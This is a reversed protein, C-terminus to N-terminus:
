ALADREGRAEAEGVPARVVGSRLDRGQQEDWERSFPTLPARVFALGARRPWDPDRCAVTCRGAPHPARCLLERLAWRLGLFLPTRATKRHYWCYFGHSRPNQCADTAYACTASAPKSPGHHRDTSM